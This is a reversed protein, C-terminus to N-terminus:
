EPASEPVLTPAVAEPPEAASTTAYGTSKPVTAMVYHSEPIAAMVFLSEPVASLKQFTEPTAAM